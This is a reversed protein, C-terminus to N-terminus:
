SIFMTVWNWYPVMAVNWVLCNFASTIGSLFVFRKMDIYGTGYLVNAPLSQFPFLVCDQATRAVAIAALIGNGGASVVFNVVIPTMASTEAIGGALFFHVIAVVLVIALVMVVPGQGVAPGLIPNM